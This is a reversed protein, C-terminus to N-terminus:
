EEDEDEEEDPLDHPHPTVIMQHHILHHVIYGHHGNDDDHEESEPEVHRRKKPPSKVRGAAVSFPLFDAGSRARQAEDEDADWSGPGDILHAQPKGLHGHRRRVTPDFEDQTGRRARDARAVSAAGLVHGGRKKKRAQSVHVHDIRGAMASAIAIGAARNEMMALSIRITNSQKALAFLITSITINRDL